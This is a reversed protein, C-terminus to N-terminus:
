EPVAVSSKQVAHREALAAEPKAGPPYVRIVIRNSDRYYRTGIPDYDLWPGVDASGTTEQTWDALSDVKVTSTDRTQQM